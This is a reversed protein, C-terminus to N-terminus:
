DAPPTRDRTHSRDERPPSLTPVISFGAARIEEALREAADLLEVDTLGDLIAPLAAVLAQKSLNPVPVQDV